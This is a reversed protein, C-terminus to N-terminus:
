EAILYAVGSIGMDAAFMADRSTNAADTRAVEFGRERLAPELDLADVVPGTGLLIRRANRSSALEIVKARAADVDGPAHWVGGAAVFQTRFCEIPDDGGGQYGVNGRTPVPAQGGAREGG